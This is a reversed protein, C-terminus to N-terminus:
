CNAKAPLGSSMIATIVASSTMCRPELLEVEETPKEEIMRQLRDPLEVDSWHQTIAEGKMRMRRYVNDRAM